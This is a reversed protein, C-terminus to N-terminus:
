ARLAEVELDCPQATVSTAKVHEDIAEILGTEISLIAQMSETERNLIAHALTQIDIFFGGLNDQWRQLNDERERQKRIVLRDVDRQALKLVLRKHQLYSAIGWICLLVVCGFFWGLFLQIQLTQWAVYVPNAIPTVYWSTAPQDFSVNCYMTSLDAQPLGGADKCAQVQEDLLRTNQVDEQAFTLNSPEIHAGALFLPIVILPILVSLLFVGMLSRLMLQIKPSTM